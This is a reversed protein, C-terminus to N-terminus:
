VADSFPIPTLRKHSTPSANGSRSSQQQLQELAGGMAMAPGPVAVSQSRMKREAVRRVVFSHTLMGVGGPTPVDTLPQALDLEGRLAKAM